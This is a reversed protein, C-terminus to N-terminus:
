RPLLFSGSKSHFPGMLGRPVPSVAGSVSIIDVGLQVTSALGSLVSVGHHNAEGAPLWATM